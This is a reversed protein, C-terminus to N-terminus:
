GIEAVPAGRIPVVIGWFCLAVRLFVKQPYDSQRGVSFGRKGLSCDQELDTLVCQGDHTKEKLGLYTDCNDQM